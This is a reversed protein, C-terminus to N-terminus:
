RNEVDRLSFIADTGLPQVAVTDVGETVHVEVGAALGVHRDVQGSPWYVLLTDVREADGLGLTVTKESAALFSSGTRVMREQRHAGIRAVIRTSLGDRNSERGEVKVRVARHNPLENRLLHAPGDNETILIDLDGDRDYDAYAAGRGVIPNALVGAITPAVDDFVGNGRNIFLHPPEAYGVGEQTKEIEPQVHGNATFLDLDGDLDVDFLFLGFTLTMLSTKGIRSIAARDVFLGNGVYRYTGIMEKSFNGVFLTPEGSEDVVGVDIGMGARAKGNEDYAMGSLAGQETFTGDGQNVYFLDRQTDNSVFLDSWGDRNVDYEAVGLTKGPAPLFGARETWDSFTGDGNNHLFRGPEGKYLEPTCYSRIMGELMCVLDNEPSWDVYNGVYLDVHGDRDADFFLASTSWRSGGTAGAEEGVEVFTRENENGPVADNRLLLNETLTTVYIDQDGDNDYDAAAVGISYSHVDGLGVAATVDAFTGDRRNRYLRLAAVPPEERDSHEPWNGGGVLMIDLWGDGDYDVFGGGSGMSEPFWRKGFAGTIHKFTSLGAAESVETFALPAMVEAPTAEVPQAPDETGSCASLLFLFCLAWGTAHESTFVQILADRLGSKNPM